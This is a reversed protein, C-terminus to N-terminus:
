EIILGDVARIYGAGKDTNVKYWDNVKRDFEFLTGPAVRLLLTSYPAPQSYVGKPYYSGVIKIYASATSAQQSLDTPLPKLEFNRNNDVSEIVVAAIDPTPEDVTPTSLTAPLTNRNASARNDVYGPSMSMPIEILTGVRLRRPNSIENFAAINRWNEVTGTYQKAIDSLRDGSKVTHVIVEMSPAVPPTNSVSSSTSGKSGCAPLVAVMATVILIRTCFRINM